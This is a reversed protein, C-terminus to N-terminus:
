VCFQNCVQLRQKSLSQRVRVRKEIADNVRAELQIRGNTKAIASLNLRRLKEHSYYMERYFIGNATVSVKQARLLRAEVEQASVKKLASMYHEVHIHWFDLPSPPTDTEVLLKSQFPLRNLTKKNEDLVDRVIIKTLEDITYIARCRPDPASKIIIGNDRTSGKLAHLASRNLCNFRGEVFPKFDPRSLGAWELAVIPVISEEASLGLMEANDAILRAPAHSCPWDKEMINIGLSHCYDVKSTFANFLALRAADWSAHFLSISLGVTMGSARDVVFYLTPRGLVVQRNWKSVIHVDVVTADIEYCAGPVQNNSVISSENDRYNKDYDNKYKRLKILSDESFLKKVWNRFQQKTPVGPVKDCFEGDLIAQPFHNCIFNHFTVSLSASGPKLYDKKVFKKINKKDRESVIYSERTAFAGTRSVVKKGLSKKVNKRQKGRGGSFYYDPLLANQTQGLRWYRNLARYISKADTNAVKALEAIEPQKYQSAVSLLLGRDDAIPEILAWRKARSDKCAKSLLSEDVLLNAGLADKVPTIELQRTFDRFESILMIKPRLVSSTKKVNFIVFINLSPYASLLRYTGSEVGVKNSLQWLSNVDIAM